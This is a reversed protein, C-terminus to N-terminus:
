LLDGSIWEWLLGVAIVIGGAVVFLTLPDM